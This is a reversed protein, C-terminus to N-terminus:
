KTGFKPLLQRVMTKNVTVPHILQWSVSVQKKFKYRMKNTKIQSHRDVDTNSYKESVDCRNKQKKKEIKCM